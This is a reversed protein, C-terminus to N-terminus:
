KIEGTLPISQPSNTGNYELVISDSTSIASSPAFNIGVKCSKGKPLATGTVCTSRKDIQFESAHPTKQSALSVNNITATGSNHLNAISVFRPGIAKVRHERFNLRSPHITLMGITPAASPTPTPTAIPTPGIPGFDVTAVAAEEAVTNAQDGPFFMRSDTWILFAKGDLAALQAYDGYQNSNYSTNDVSSEDSYAVANQFERSPSTVLINAGFSAGGDDSAAAFIQTRANNPDNRTDYWSVIVRGTSPDVTVWPFFQSASGIDDNVRLPASWSAGGNSSSMLYINTDAAISNASAFDSYTVYLNGVHPSSPDRDVAISAFANIGRQDQAPILNNKSFSGLIHSAIRVPNSFTVGGDTSSAFVTTETSGGIRNWIANVTGDPGIALDGAIDSGATHPDVVVAKWTKGNVSHAVRETNAQDWIVYVRNHFTHLQGVTTDIALLDKDNFRAPNGLDNAPVGWTSWSAGSDTSRAVVIASASTQAVDAQESILMYSAYANGSGDWAVAPDSGFYYPGRGQSLSAPWPSCDYRWTSGGDTSGYLAELGESSANPPECRHDDLFSNAGAVLQKSNNPNVAIAVEGQYTDLNDLDVNKGITPNSASPSLSNSRSGDEIAPNIQSVRPSAPTSHFRAWDRHAQVIHQPAVITTRNTRRVREFVVAPDELGRIASRRSDDSLAGTARAGLM